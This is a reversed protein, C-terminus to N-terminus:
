ELYLARLAQRKEETAGLAETLYRDFSGEEETVRRDAAASINDAAYAIWALSDTNVRAERLEAAHHWRVCDLAEGYERGQWIEKLFSYGSASHRGSRGARYCLKGVDHLLYGLTVELTKQRLHM